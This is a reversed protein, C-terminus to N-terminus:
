FAVTLKGVIDGRRNKIAPPALELFKDFEADTILKHRRLIEFTVLYTAAPSGDDIKMAFGVGQNLVGCCYVGAAGSKAVLKHDTFKRLDLGGVMDPNDQMARVIQQAAERRELPLGDPNALRAFGVAMNRIPMHFIPAGCGDVAVGLEEEAVECVEQVTARILAQVPHSPSCYEATPAGLLRALALMGSHKGSCNDQIGSGSELDSEGCGIKSLISTVTQVQKEGGSHSACIIALESSTLRFHEVGGREVFALAQLPKAASRLFARKSENGVAYVIEGRTDALIATGRHINDILGGRSTQVLVQSDTM